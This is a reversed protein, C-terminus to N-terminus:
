VVNPDSKDCLIGLFSLRHTFVIVQRDASLEIIRDITKEEFDQDLSSIPDDFIIPSKSPRGVVDALFATLEVIRKEGESLIDLPAVGGATVGRLRISHMAKGYDVRTKVLEVKIRKAGLKKLESNFRDIYATTIIKEAIKGAKISIATHDTGRIWETYQAVTKLRSLDTKINEAQQATWQKVQLETKLQIAKARDFSQADADHQKAQTELDISRKELINIWPYADQKVGEAADLLPNTLQEKTVAAAKWFSSLRQIWDEETLGSAQCVTRLTDDNLILPFSEIADKYGTEAASAAAELEGRVYGELESLRQQAEALLQQQCLVCKAGVTTNPFTSAPYAKDESYRRASEWLARWTDTGVGDLSASNLVKTAGEISIQRKSQANIKLDIFRQCSEPCFVLMASAIKNLIGEIQIKQGRKSAALKSPNDSKLREELENLTKQNEESWSLISTLGNETHTAKLNGYLKAAQTNAYEPPMTPLKSPFTAMEQQLRHRVGECARVLDDFIAVSRPTYSAEKEKSLYLRGGDSDFIDIGTLEALATGDANWEKTDKQKDIKYEIKCSRKAPAEAFVNSRIKSANAKGFAKKMIRVYGSKGSGTGGYIVVLNGEGFPIPKRPRLNEIGQIDGISIIHLAQNQNADRSDFGSVNLAKTRKQGNATKCLITLEELDLDSLKRNALSRVVAEQQWVPRGNLWSLIEKEISM